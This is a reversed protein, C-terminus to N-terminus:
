EPAPPLAFPLVTVFRFTPALGDGVTDRLERRSPGASSRPSLCDVEAGRAPRAAVAQEHGLEVDVQVGRVAAQGGSALDLEAVGFGRGLGRRRRAAVPSSSWSSSRCRSSSRSLGLGPIGRPEAGPLAPGARRLGQLQVRLQRGAAIDERDVPRSRVDVGVAGGAGVDGIVVAVVDEALEALREERDRVARDERDAPVLDAAVPEPDEVLLSVLEVVGMERGERGRGRVACVHLRALDDPEHAVGAVGLPRGVVQVELHVRDRQEVEAVVAGDIRRRIEIGPLM